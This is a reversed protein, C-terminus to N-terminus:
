TNDHAPELSANFERRLRDQRGTEPEANRKTLVKEIEIRAKTTSCDNHMEIWRLTDWIGRLRLIEWNRKRAEIQKQTQM